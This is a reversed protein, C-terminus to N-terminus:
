MHLIAIQAYELRVHSVIVLALCVALLILRSMIDTKVNLVTIDFYLQQDATEVVNQFKYVLM